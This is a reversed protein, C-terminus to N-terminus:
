FILPWQYFLETLNNLPNYSPLLHFLWSYFIYKITSDRFIFEFWFLLRLFRSQFWLVSANPNQTNRNESNRLYTKRNQHENHNASKGNKLKQNESKPWFYQRTKSNKMQHPKLNKGIQTGTERTERWDSRCNYAEASRSYGRYTVKDGSYRM